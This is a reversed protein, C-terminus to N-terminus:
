SPLLLCPCCCSMFVTLASKDFSACAQLQYYGLQRSDAQTLDTTGVSEQLELRQM